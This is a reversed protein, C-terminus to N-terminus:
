GGGAPLRLVAVAGGDDANEFTLRAGLVEAQGVAITLGLGHGKASGKASGSTRFRQPGDTLLYVLGGSDGCAGLLLVAAVAVSAGVAARVPRSPFM